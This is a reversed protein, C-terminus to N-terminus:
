KFRSKIWCGQYLATVFCIKEFFVTLLCADMRHSPMGACLRGQHFIVDDTLAWWLRNKKKEKKKASKHNRCKNGPWATRFAANDHSGGSLLYHKKDGHYGPPTLISDRATHMKQLHTSPKTKMISPAGRAGCFFVSLDFSHKIGHAPRLLEPIRGPWARCTQNLWVADLRLGSFLPLCVTNWSPSGLTLKFRQLLNRLNRRRRNLVRFRLWLYFIIVM